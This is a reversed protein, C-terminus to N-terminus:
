VSPRSDNTMAQVELNGAIQLATLPVWCVLTKMDFYHKKKSLLQLKKVLKNKKKEGRTCLDCASEPGCLRRVARGM